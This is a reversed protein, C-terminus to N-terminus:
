GEFIRELRELAAAEEKSISGLGLVGGAAEAVARARDLLDHKLAERATVPLSSVLARIYGDWTERLAPSPKQLLWGELLHHAASGDKVGSAAAGSLVAEREKEDLKGNAWAVEILPVLSLAALTEPSLGLKVLRDLVAEDSIGSERALEERAEREAKQTALRARLKENEKRFFSEELAKRRDGLLEDSM